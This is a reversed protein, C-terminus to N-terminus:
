QEIFQLTGKTIDPMYVDDLSFNFQELNKKLVYTVEILTYYRLPRGAASSESSLFNYYRTYRHAATGMMRQTPKPIIFYNDGVPILFMLSKLGGSSKVENESLGLKELFGSASGAEFVGEKVFENYADVVKESNIVQGSQVTPNKEIEKIEEHEEIFEHWIEAFYKKAKTMDHLSEIIAAQIITMRHVSHARLEKEDIKRLDHWIIRRAKKNAEELKSRALSEDKSDVAQKAEKVLNVVIGFDAEIQQM